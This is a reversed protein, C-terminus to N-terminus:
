REGGQAVRHMGLSEALEILGKLEEDTPEIGDDSPDHPQFLECDFEVKPHRKGDHDYTDTM